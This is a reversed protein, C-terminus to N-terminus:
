LLGRPPLLVPHHEGHEAPDQVLGPLSVELQWLSAKGTATRTGDERDSPHELRDFRTRLAQAAQPRPHQGRQEGRTGACDGVMRGRGLGRQWLLKWTREGQHTVFREEITPHVCSERHPVVERVDAAARITRLPVWVGSDDDHVDVIGSVRLNHPLDTRGVLAVGALGRALQPDPRALVQEHDEVESTGSMWSQRPEGSSGVM